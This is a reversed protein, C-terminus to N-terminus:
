AEVTLLVREPAFGAYTSWVEFVEVQNKNGLKYKLAETSFDYTTPQEGMEDEDWGCEKLYQNYWEQICTSVKELTDFCRAVIIPIVHEDERRVFTLIYM